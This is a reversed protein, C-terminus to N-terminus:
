VLGATLDSFMGMKKKEKRKWLQRQETSQWGNAGKDLAAPNNPNEEEQGALM